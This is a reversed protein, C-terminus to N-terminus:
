SMESDAAMQILRKTEKALKEPLYSVDADLFGRIILNRAEDETLGRSMMYEIHDPSIKGVSAEHTLAVEPNLADIEPISDVRAHPSLLLASCSIHGHVDLGDGTIQGRSIVHANDVAIVRSIVQANSGEGTLLVKTGLDFQSEQKGYVLTQGYYSSNKGRCQVFPAMQLSKVASMVIYFNSFKAGDELIMGSRPRVDTEDKWNHIMTFSIKANKGAYFESIGLHLAKKVSKHTTCGTIIDLQADEEAIIINHVVQKMGPINIYLCSQLPFVTKQGKRAYIFYGQIFEHLAAEATYKDKDPQVAKWMYDQLNLGGDSGDYKKLAENMPM